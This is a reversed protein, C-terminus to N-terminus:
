CMALFHVTLSPATEIEGSRGGAPITWDRVVEQAILMQVRAPRAGRNEVHFILRSNRISSVAFVRGQGSACDIRQDEPARDRYTVGQDMLEATYEAMMADSCGGVALAATMVVVLGVARM